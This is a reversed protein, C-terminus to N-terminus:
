NKFSHIPAPIRGGRNILRDCGFENVPMLPAYGLLGGFEAQDGVDKGIVPIIRVATTKQNIMGIAMEDAIIGSITSEKTKGPIAIMDLGVSCVCTMAELKEITLAGKNVANIMGQDESVPIFAGSLGGVYSSAMVGGKKVQDNLLALAATTGPAGVYDVGIEQLIDAISDGIAPTPALSLDIIGFPVDLAKSAEKAVLQGVRTIKFATKKITECLEEFGKGRCTELAKKVVGPGSVGVNIIADAESVGHFAGAMFPNDDPANCFVVFKACGISDSDKTLVATEKITSGLLKVADMNIGTKTSGVNVSSCVRETTALAEPISKILIKDSETMGKSVIASFGGIFNVGVEKAARDLTKAISVYSDTKTSSAAIAIPTVSIRKNVIPVGYKKEIDEGVKVLDKAKTTIKNYINENFRDVDSDACDMLNIGMTITRVDLNEKLIMTNTELVELSNIM